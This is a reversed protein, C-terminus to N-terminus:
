KDGWKWILADAKGTLVMWAAKLRHTLSFVGFPRAPAWTGTKENFARTSNCWGILNDLRWIHPSPKM